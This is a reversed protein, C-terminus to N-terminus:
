SGKEEMNGMSFLDWMTIEKNARRGRWAKSRGEWSTEKMYLGQTRVCFAMDMSCAVLEKM